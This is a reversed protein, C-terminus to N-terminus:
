KINIKLIHIFDIDQMYLDDRRGIFVKLNEQTLVNIHHLAKYKTSFFILLIM